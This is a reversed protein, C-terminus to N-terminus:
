GELGMPFGNRSGNKKKRSLHICPMNQAGNSSYRVLYMCIHCNKHIVHVPSSLLSFFHFSYNDWSIFPHWSPSEGECEQGYKCCISFCCTRLLVSGLLTHKKTEGRGDFASTLFSRSSNRNQRLPNLVWHPRLSSTPEIVLRVRHALSGTNGCAAVYTVCASLDM